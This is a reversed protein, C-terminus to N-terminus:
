ADAAKPVLCRRQDPRRSEHHSRALHELHQAQQRHVDGVLHRSQHTPMRRHPTSRDLTRPQCTRRSSTSSKCKACSSPISGCCKREDPSVSSTPNRRPSDRRLILLYSTPSPRNSPWPRQVTALSGIPLQLEFLHPPT